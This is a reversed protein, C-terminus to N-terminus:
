AGTGDLEPWDEQHWCMWWFALEWLAINRFLESLRRSVTASQSPGALRDVQEGLTSIATSFAPNTWNDVWPWWRGEPDANERVADWAVRYALEIALIVVAGELLGGDMAAIVYSSYGLCVPWPHGPEAPLGMQVLTQTLERPERVTDAQLRALVEAIEEAPGTAQLISLARGEQTCFLGCQRAWAAFREESLTGDAFGLLWPHRRVARWIDENEEMLSATLSGDRARAQEAIQRV